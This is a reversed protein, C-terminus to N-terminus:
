FCNGDEDNLLNEKVFSAERVDAVGVFAKVGDARDEAIHDVLEDLGLGDSKELVYDSAVQSEAVVHPPNSEHEDGYEIKNL